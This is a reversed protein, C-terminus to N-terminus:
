EEDPPECVFICPYPNFNCSESTSTTSILEPPLLDGEETKCFKYQKVCCNNATCKILMRQPPLIGPIGDTYHDHWCASQIIRYSTKCEGNGPLNDFANNLLYEMAANHITQDSATCLHCPQGPEWYYQLRDFYIDNLTEMGYEPCPPTSRKRFIVTMYCGPCGPIPVDEFQLEEGWSTTNCPLDCTLDVLHEMLVNDCGSNCSSPCVIHVPITDKNVYILPDSNESLISDISTVEGNIFNVQKDYRCCYESSNCPIPEGDENLITNGEVDKQYCGGTTYFSM